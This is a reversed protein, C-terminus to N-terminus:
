LMIEMEPCRNVLEDPFHPNINHNKTGKNVLKCIAGGVQYYVGTQGGTGITIFKEALAAPALAMVGLGLVAALATNKNIGALKM